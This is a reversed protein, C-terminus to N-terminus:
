RDLAVVADHDVCALSSGGVRKARYMAQDAAALVHDPDHGSRATCVGASVSILPHGGEAAAREVARAAREVVERLAGEEADPCVIVFEDGGVRGVTDTARLASPLHAAIAALLHDGAAHGEDDNIAKFGDLDLFAVGVAEGTRTAKRLAQALRDRVLTRNPLGTLADHLSRHRLEVEARLRQIATRAIDAATELLEHEAATLAQRPHADPGRGTVELATRDTIAVRALPPPEDHPQGRHGNPSPEDVGSADDPAAPETPALRVHADLADAATEATAVLVDHETQGDVAAISLSALATQRRAHAHAEALERHRQRVALALRWPVVAVAVIAAALPLLTSAEGPAHRAFLVAPVALAMLAVVLRAASESPALPGPQPRAVEATSPHWLAGALLLPAVALGTLAEAPADVHLLLLVKGGLAVLLGALLLWATALRAADALLLRVAVGAGVALVLPLALSPLPPAVAVTAWAPPHLLADITLAGLAVAALAADLWAEARRAMARAGLLSLMWGGVAVAAGLAVIATAVTPVLAGTTWQTVVLLAWAGAVGIAAVRPWHGGHFWADPRRRPALWAAAVLAGAGLLGAEAGVTTVLVAVAATGAVLGGWFLM